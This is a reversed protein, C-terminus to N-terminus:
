SQNTRVDVENLQLGSTDICVQHSSNALSQNSSQIQITTTGQKLDNSNSLILNNNSNNHSHNNSQNHSSASTIVNSNHVKLVGVQVNLLEATFNFLCKM